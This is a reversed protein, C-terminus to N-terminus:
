FFKNKILNYFITKIFYDPDRKSKLLQLFSEFSSNYPKNSIYYIFIIAFAGCTDSLFNQFRYNNYIISKYNYKKFYQSICRNPPAGLSDFYYIKVRSLFYIGVWHNGKMSEPQLNVVVVSPFKLIEIIDDCPHCGEYINKTEPLSWLIRNIQQTDM